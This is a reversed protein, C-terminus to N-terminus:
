SFLGFPTLTDAAILENRERIHNRREERTHEAGSLAVMINTILLVITGCFIDIADQHGFGVLVIGLLMILVAVLLGIIHWLWIRSHIRGLAYVLTVAILGSSMWV